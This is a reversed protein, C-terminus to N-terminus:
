SMALLPQLRRRVEESQEQWGAQASTSLGGLAETLTAQYPPHIVCYACQWFVCGILQDLTFKISTALIGHPNSPLITADMICGAGLLVPAVLFAGVFAMKAGRQWEYDFPQHAGSPGRQTGNRWQMYQTLADGFAFGFGTPLAKGLATTLLPNKRALARGNAFARRSSHHLGSLARNSPYM